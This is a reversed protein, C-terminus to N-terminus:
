IFFKQSYFVQIDSVLINECNAFAKKVSKILSQPCSAGSMFALYFLKIVNKVYLKLIGIM